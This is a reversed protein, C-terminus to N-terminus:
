ERVKSHAHELGNSSVVINVNTSMGFCTNFGSLIYFLAELTVVLFIQQLYCHLYKVDESRTLCLFSTKFDTWSQFTCM